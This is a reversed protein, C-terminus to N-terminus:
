FKRRRSPSSPHKCIVSHMRSLNIRIQLLPRPRTTMQSVYGAAVRARERRVVFLATQGRARVGFVIRFLNVLGRAWVSGHCLHRRAGRDALANNVPMISLILRVRRRDRDQVVSMINGNTEYTSLELVKSPKKIKQFNNRRCRFVYPNLREYM